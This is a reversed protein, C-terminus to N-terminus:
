YSLITCELSSHLLRLVLSMVISRQAIFHAGLETNCSHRNATPRFLAATRARRALARPATTSALIYIAPFMATYRPLMLLM